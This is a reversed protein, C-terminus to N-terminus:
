SYDKTMCRIISLCIDPVKTLWLLFMKLMYQVNSPARPPVTPQPVTSCAPLDRTRNGITDNSNKMQCLGEPRVIARPDVWGRFSILVLFIEQPPLPLRHMPSVVKGGEHASQRSIQFGWVGPVGEPGTWAQWPIAKKNYMLLGRSLKKVYKILWISFHITLCCASSNLSDGWLMWCWSFAM